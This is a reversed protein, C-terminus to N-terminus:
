FPQGLPLVSWKESVYPSRDGLLFNILYRPSRRVLLNLEFLARRLDEYIPCVLLCHCLDELMNCGCLFVREEYSIYFICVNRRKKKLFFLTRTGKLFCLVADCFESFQSIWLIIVKQDTILLQKGIWSSHIRVIHKYIHVLCFKRWGWKEYDLINNSIYKEKFM